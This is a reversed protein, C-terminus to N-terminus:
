LSLRHHLHQKTKSDGRNAAVQSNGGGGGGGQSWSSSSLGSALTIGGIGVDMLGTGWMEAKAYRRPFARCLGYVSLPPSVAMPVLVQSPQQGSKWRAIHVHFAQHFADMQRSQFCM